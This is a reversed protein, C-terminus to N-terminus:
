PPNYLSYSFGGEDSEERGGKVSPIIVDDCVERFPLGTERQQRNKTQRERAKKGKGQQERERERGRDEELPRRARRERKTHYKKAAWNANRACRM